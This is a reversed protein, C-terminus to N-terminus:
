SRDPWERARRRITNATFADRVCELRHYVDATKMRQTASELSCAIGIEVVSKMCNLYQSSRMLSAERYNIERRQLEVLETIAEGGCREAAETIDGGPFLVPDLVAFVTDPLGATMYDRLNRGDEFLQDTPRKGSFLELLLIGFSYVDGEKSAASGMGYEAFLHLTLIGITGKIGITSTGSFTAGEASLIRSIGFDSLHAVMDEDLLVNSPKLDCHALPTECLDHLYHLASAVDVAINLRHGLSLKHSGDTTHLWNELNGNRMYEFVLARFEDGNHETSSCYSMVGVLNRHRISRLANLEAALSKYAKRNELKLVKVAVPPDIGDLKGKYVLGFSGSGILFESSFGGTARHLDRYSVRVFNPLTPGEVLTKKKSRSSNTIIRFTLLSLLSLGVFVLVVLMITRRNIAKTSPKATCKPLHLNLVGGCLMNNGMLSISSSNSFIGETPVQGDLHNFSLNLYQLLNSNQLASPIEGQLNNLSLDAKRLSKLFALSPPIAGALSNRQLYLYELSKCDGIASPIKGTLFNHSIDLANLNELMGIEPTLNGTFLNHSLNLLKTLSPLSFIKGPISGTLTNGSIDLSILQLLSGLGLPIAGEFRNNSINLETLQTLNGISPLIPGSLQNGELHLSQLYPFRSFFPPISGGFLNYSLYLANLNVLKELGAPVSGILKNESVDLIALQASLNAITSPLTGGFNNATISLLQLQSCNQLGKLFEFDDPSYNGLHNIGASLWFLDPLNGICDPIQGVFDNKNMDVLQLETANCLSKPISGAFKNKSIAFKQLKPLTFGIDDPLRGEFQNWPLAIISLTTINFFSQPITGIMQNIGLSISYLNELAGLSEPIRGVLNLYAAGFDILKTLNGVSQPIEGTLNNTGVRMVRLKSLSGIELPIRGQLNNLGLRMIRLEYCRTLNDPIEGVFSNSSFNIERLQLLNGIEQPIEGHFTNNELNIAQLFSLNGIHPPLTGVLDQKKLVLSTVRQSGDDGHRGCSIGVWSCFHVSDNWSRFVGHPDSTIGNRFELLALRDTQNNTSAAATVAQQPDRLASLHFLSIVMVLNSIMSLPKCTRFSM